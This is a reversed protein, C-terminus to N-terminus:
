TTAEAGCPASDTACVKPVRTSPPAKSDTKTCIAPGVPKSSKSRSSRSRARARNSANRASQASALALLAVAGVAAGAPEPVAFLGGHDVIAWVTNGDTDHGNAGLQPPAGLSNRYADFSMNAALPGGPPTNGLVADKWQGDGPDRWYLRLASEDALGADDYELEVVVEDDGSRARSPFSHM